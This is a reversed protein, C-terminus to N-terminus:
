AINQRKHGRNASIEFDLHGREEEIDLARRLNGYQNESCNIAIYRRVNSVEFIVDLSNLLICISDFHKVDSLFIRFTSNTSAEILGDLFWEENVQQLRVRDGLSIGKAYFPISDLIGSDNESTLVWLRETSFPPFGTKDKELKAVAKVKTEIM